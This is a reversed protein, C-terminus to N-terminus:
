LAGTLIETLHEELKKLALVMEAERKSPRRRTAVIEMKRVQRILRLAVVLKLQSDSKM